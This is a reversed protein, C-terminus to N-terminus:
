DCIDNLRNLLCLCNDVVNLRCLWRDRRWFLLFLLFRRFLLLRPRFRSFDSQLERQISRHQKNTGLTLNCIRLLIEFREIVNRM